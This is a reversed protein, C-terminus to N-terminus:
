NLQNTEEFKRALLPIVEPHYYTDTGDFHTLWTHTARLKEVEPTHSLYVDSFARVIAKRPAHFILSLESTSPWGPEM